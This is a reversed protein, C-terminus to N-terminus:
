GACSAVPRNHADPMIETLKAQLSTWDYRPSKGAWPTLCFSLEVGMERALDYARRMEDDSDNWEFLIYKWEINAPWQLRRRSQAADGLFKLARHVSGGRRYRAYSDPDVGDISVRLDNLGAEFYEDRWPFNGNTTLQVHAQPFAAHFARLLRPLEPHMLPEGRGELHLVRVTVGNRALNAVIAEWLSSDLHYPPPKLTKRQARPICLPCDLNCLWSPEVHLIEIQRCNIGPQCAVGKRLMSCCQCLEYPLQREVAFSYRIQQLRQHNFLDFYPDALKQPTLVDLLTKEGVCCWCPMSGDAKIYLSDCMVCTADQRGPEEPSPAAPPADARAAIGLPVATWSAVSNVCRRLTSKLYRKM